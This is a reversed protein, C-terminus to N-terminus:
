LLMARLGTLTVNVWSFIAFVSAVANRYFSQLGELDIIKLKKLALDQKSSLVEKIRRSAKYLANPFSHESDENKEVEINESGVDMKARELEKRREKIESEIARIENEVKLLEEYLQKIGEYERLESSLMDYRQKEYEHKECEKSLKSLRANSRESEIDLEKISAETRNLEDEKQRLEAFTFIVENKLDEYEMMKDIFDGKVHVRGEIETTEVEFSSFKDSLVRQEGKIANIESELKTVRQYVEDKDKRLQEVKGAKDLKLANLQTNLADNERQLNSIDRKLARYDNLKGHINNAAIAQNAATLRANLQRIEETLQNNETDVTRLRQSEDEYLRLQNRLPTLARLINGRLDNNPDVPPMIRTLQPTLQDIETSNITTTSALSFIAIGFRIIHKAKAKCHM